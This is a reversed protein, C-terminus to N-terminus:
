QNFTLNVQNILAQLADAETPDAQMIKKWLAFIMKDSTIGARAYQELEIAKDTPCPDHTTIVAEASTKEKATLDRAYVIKGTSSVSRVPLAASQLEETLKPANFINETM